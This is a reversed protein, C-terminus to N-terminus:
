AEEEVCVCEREREGEREGDRGLYGGKEECADRGGGREEWEDMM